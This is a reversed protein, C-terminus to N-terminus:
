DFRLILDGRGDPLVRHSGDSDACSTWIAEIPSAVELRETYASPQGIQELDISLTMGYRFFWM